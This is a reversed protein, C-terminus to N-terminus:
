FRGTVQLVLEDGGRDGDRVLDFGHAYGLQFRMSGYFGSSLRVSTATLTDNRRDRGGGSTQRDRDLWAATADVAVFLFFALERRYGLSGIAYHECFFEGQAAGPLLPAQTTDYEVGRRDAGGGIRRASFRDVDDGAGVHVSAFVRDRESAVFPVADIAYAYASAAVYDNGDGGRHTEVGALGWDDWNTRWGHVLDAGVAIGRHPLEILNRELLDLRLQARTRLEFTSDPTAFTPDADDGRAFYLVGPEVILDAALMNDQQDGVRRRWGAGLGARLYGWQLQERDQAVGDIRESSSWPATDNTFTLVREWEGSGLPAAWFVDDYVGALVARLLNRDDPHRWVYVGATPQLGADDTDSAHAIAVDWSTDSRRDRPEVRMPAGFVTATFGEGSRV